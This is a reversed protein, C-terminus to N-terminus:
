MSVTHNAVKKQFLPMTLMLWWQGKMTNDERQEDAQHTRSPEIVHHVNIEHCEVEVNNNPNDGSKDAVPIKKVVKVLPDKNNKKELDKGQNKNVEKRKCNNISHDICTCYSCFESLKEYEIDVFFAFGTSEVLIKYSLEKTMDLDVLVRM